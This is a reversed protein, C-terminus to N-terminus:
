KALGGENLQKGALIHLHLHFVTQGADAGNNIVLRFADGCGLLDAGKVAVLLLQGLLEQHAEKADILRPIPDRPIILVHTPAQPQIDRIVICRDDEYVRESPLEGDIIREFVTKEVHREKSQESWIKKCVHQCRAM